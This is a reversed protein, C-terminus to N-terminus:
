RRISVFGALPEHITTILRAPLTALRSAARRTWPWEPTSGGRVYRSGVVMDRSGDLLPRVLDPIVEPPHSLDADM